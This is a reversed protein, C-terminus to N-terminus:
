KYSGIDYESYPPNQIEDEASLFQEFSLLFRRVLANLRRSKLACSHTLVQGQVRRVQHGATLHM